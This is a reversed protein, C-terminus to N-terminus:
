GVLWLRLQVQCAAAGEADGVGAPAAEAADTMEPVPPRTTAFSMAHTFINFM